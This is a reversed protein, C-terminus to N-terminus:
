SRFIRTNMTEHRMAVIDGAIACGGIDDLDAALLGALMENVRGSLAALIRQGETQGLPIARVGITVLNGLFGQLFLALVPAVALGLVRAVTGVAVPYAHDALELAWVGRATRGFAAGLARTEDHREASPALALALADLNERAAGSQARFAAALLLADNRGAGYALVGDLWHQLGDADRVLGADIAQELGHSYSFAGVPFAPSLMQTLILFAGNDM